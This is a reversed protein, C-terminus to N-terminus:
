RRPPLGRRVMMQVAENMNIPEITTEPNSIPWVRLLEDVFGQGVSEVGRFDVEIVRFREMGALLRKAESRSVFSTDIEFLKLVPRTRTFEFDETFEDFVDRLSRTTLPDLALTVKTGVVVASQGVAHDNRINDVIWCLGNADIRFRDVAKSTFFIGEGAHRAPDTTRKGKTLEQIAQFHDDLGFGHAVREFVGIGDDAIEIVITGDEALGAAITATSGGSHDIANNLMETFGHRLIPRSADRLRLKPECARWVEHEALGALRLSQEITPEVIADPRTVVGTRPRYRLWAARVQELDFRRHGGHTRETPLVGADALARVQSASIGFEKSIAGISVRRAVVPGGFDVNLTSYLAM